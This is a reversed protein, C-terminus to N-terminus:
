QLQLSVDKKIILDNIDKSLVDSFTRAGLYNLHGQDSFYQKDYNIYSTLSNNYNLFPINYKEAINSIIINNNIVNNIKAEKLYEPTEVFILPIHKSKIFNVFMIFGEIEKNDNHIDKKKLDTIYNADYPVFGNDYHDILINNHIDTNMTEKLSTFIDSEHTILLYDYPMMVSSINNKTLEFVNKSSMYKYDDSRKRWLKKSDFMFWNVSYIILKPQTYHVNVIDKYLNYNFNPAAANFAFNYVKHGSINIKKPIIAHSAHSAGFILVDSKTNNNFMEDYRYKYALNDNNIHHRLRYEIAIVVVSVLLLFVFLKIILEYLRFNSTSM